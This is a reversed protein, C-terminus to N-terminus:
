ARRSMPTVNSERGEVIAALRDAWIDLAQRKERDYAGRQYTGAVGSRFGSVHNLLSEIVHPPIQLGEALARDGPPLNRIEDDGLGGGLYTAVSRRLDHPQWHALPKGTEKEIAANLIDKSNSWGSYHGNRVGFIFDRLEGKEVRRPQAELIERAPASLPVSHKRANKTREAPLDIATGDAGIESWRLGAIENARQGTLMLLKLIAGYHGNGAHRWILRLEWPELVRDRSEEAFRSIGICPNVACYDHELCWGFFASLSSLVRNSTVEGRSKAVSRLLDKVDARAIKSVQLAHLPKAYESLHAEIGAYTRARVTSAKDVLYKGALDGLTHTAVRRAQRTDGAPDAGLRIKAHLDKAINRAKVLGIAVAGITLRRQKAGLRYQFIFNRSGGERLRVGFGPLSDDWHFADTEGPALKLGKVSADTFKV